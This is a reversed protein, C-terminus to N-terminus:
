EWGVLTATSADRSTWPPTALVEAMVTQTAQLAIHILFFMAPM